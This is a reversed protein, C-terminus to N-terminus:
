LYRMRPIAGFLWSSNCGPNYAAYMWTSRGGRCIGPVAMKGANGGTPM